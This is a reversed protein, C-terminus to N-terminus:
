LRLHDWCPEAAGGSVPQPRLRAVLAAIMVAVFGALNAVEAVDLAVDQVDRVPTSEGQMSAGGRLPGIVPQGKPPAWARDAVMVKLVIRRPSDGGGTVREMEIIDGPMVLSLYAQDTIVLEPCFGATKGKGKARCALSLKDKPPPPDAPQQALLAAAVMTALM